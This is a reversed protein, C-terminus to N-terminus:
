PLYKINRFYITKANSGSFVFEAVVYLRTPAATNFKDLPFTYTKWETTLEVQSKTESGDDPDTNDKIGVEITDGSKESKLDISLSRFTSFDQSSRPPDRPKGVTVFVTGWELGDPYTMRMYDGMDELWNRNQKSDDVGMNYGPCLKRVSAIYIDGTSCPPPPPPTTPLPTLQAYVHSITDGIVLISESWDQYNSKQIKVIHNGSLSTVNNPTVGQHTGDVYIDAGTPISKVAIVGDASGKSVILRVEKGKWVSLGASLDQNIVRGKEVDNNYQESINAKINREALKSTADAESLGKLYPVETLAASSIAINSVLAAVMFILIARIIVVNFTTTNPPNKGKSRRKRILIEVILGSSIGILLSVFNVIVQEIGVEM